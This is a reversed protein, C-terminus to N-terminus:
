RKPELGQHIRNIDDALEMPEHINKDYEEFMVGNHWLKVKGTKGGMRNLEVSLMSKNTYIDQESDNTVKMAADKSKIRYLMLVMDAEQTIFSSDRIMTWDPVKDDKIMGVHAILIISVKLMVAMRKIERVIGGLLFSTNNYDKLPLLFHLHDIVFLRVGKEEKAKLIAEFMWSYQLDGGGRHLDIPLFIPIDTKIGLKQNMAEFSETVEQWSMEYSFMASPEGRRAMQHMITMACMTKGQKTPASLVYLRGDEFGQILADLKGFGTAVPTRKPEKAIIELRQKHSLMDITPISTIDHGAQLMQEVYKSM